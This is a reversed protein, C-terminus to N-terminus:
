KEYGIINTNWMLSTATGATVSSTIISGSPIPIPESFDLQYYPLVTMYALTVSAIRTTFPFGAPGTGVSFSGANGVTITGVATEFATVDIHQVYFTKGATTTRSSLVVSASLAATTNFSSVSVITKAVTNGLSVSGIVGTTSLSTPQNNLTASSVVTGTSLTYLPALFSGSTGLVSYNAPFQTTVTSTPQVYGPNLITFTTGLVSYGAQYTVIATGIQLEYGPTLISFTTGLVSYNAPYQVVVTSTPQVYGPNTLTFTTGLVSVTSPWSIPQTNQFFAGAVNLNQGNVNTVALTSGNVAVSSGAANVFMGTSLVYGPNVSSFTSGLASFTSTWNIPTTGTGGGAVCGAACNVNLNQGNVNTIALTSGNVAVSSGATNVVAGTSAVYLPALISGSTGLVSYNAPYQVTVTSTPQVYGPNTLTFTTGLVSVTSPWSVPQTNPWFVGAVPTTGNTLTFITAGYALSTPITSASQIYGANASSFTTGLVSYNAPFQVTVTSTPQIYGPNALTFTTGLISFTSTISIPQTNQFFAGTVAQSAPFNLVSVSSNTLVVTTTSGPVNQFYITTGNALSVPVTTVSQIYVSAGPMLSMPLTSTTIIYFPNPASGSSFYVFQAGSATCGVCTVTPSGTWIVYGPNTPSANKIPGATTIIDARAAGACALLLAVVAARM